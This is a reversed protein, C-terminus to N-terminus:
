PQAAESAQSLPDQSRDRPRTGVALLLDESGRSGPALLKDGVRPCGPSGRSATTQAIMLPSSQWFAAGTGLSLRRPAWGRWMPACVGAQVQDPDGTRQNALATHAIASLM